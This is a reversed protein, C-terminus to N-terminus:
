ADRVFLGDVQLMEVKASNAFGPFIGACRLGQSELFAYLEAFGAGGDYLKTLSMETLLVSTQALTRAAGSLVAMEYGQTDLKVAYPARWEGQMVKDLPEVAVEITGSFGSEPAAEVSRADVALLSSSALNHSVNFTATTSEPGLACAPAVHWRPDAAALRELVVRAQPLPEFSVVDKDWGLKRVDEGTQGLNAGIDLVTATGRHRAHWIFAAMADSLPEYRDIKLGARRGAAKVIQGISM